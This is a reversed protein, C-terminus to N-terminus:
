SYSYSCFCPLLVLLPALGLGLLILTLLMLVLLWGCVGVFAMGVCRLNEVYQPAADKAPQWPRHYLNWHCPQQMTIRM